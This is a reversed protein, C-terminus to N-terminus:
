RRPFVLIVDGVKREGEKDSLHNVIKGDLFMTSFGGGDAVSLRKNSLVIKKM